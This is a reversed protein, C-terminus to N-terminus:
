VRAKAAQLTNSLLMAITMPGVGGPVPTIASAIPEVNPYDVDGCLKGDANRNIGVDIVVAGPKVMDATIMGPKGIAVVLIDAERTYAKLDPTKSHCVTVTGNEALLMAAMPKGVINSRGVVVCQKGSVTVGTRHLLEMVGYPTCPCLSPKGIQLLGVNVPHFGDVDKKPDIARLIADECIHRPLPLQCLIGHVAPDANLRAIEALLEEETTEAPFERVISRFGVDICAKHKNGVYVKSAPDDGVILVALCPTIGHAASFAATEIRIEERIQAAVTKGSIITAM